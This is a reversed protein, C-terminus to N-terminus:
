FLVAAQGTRPNTARWNKPQCGQPSHGNTEGKRSNAHQLAADSLGRQHKWLTSLCRCSSAGTAECRCTLCLLRAKYKARTIVEHLYDAMDAQTPQGPHISYELLGNLGPRGNSFTSASHGLQPGLSAAAFTFLNLHWSQTLDMVLKSADGLKTIVLREWHDQAEKRSHEQRAKSNGSLTSETTKQPTDSTFSAGSGHEFKGRTSEFNTTDGNSTQWPCRLLSRTITRGPQPRPTVFEVTRDKIEDKLPTALLSPLWRFRKSSCTLTKGESLPRTKCSFSSLRLRLVTQGMLNWSSSARDMTRRVPPTRKMTTKIVAKTLLM